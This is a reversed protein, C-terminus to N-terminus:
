YRCECGSDLFEHEGDSWLVAEITSPDNLDIFFAALEDASLRSFEEGVAKYFEDWAAQDADSEMLTSFREALQTSPLIAHSFGEDTIDLWANLCRDALEGVPFTLMRTATGTWKTKKLFSVEVAKTKHEM